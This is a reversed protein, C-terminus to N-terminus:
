NQRIIHRNHKISVDYSEMKLTAIPIWEALRELNSETWNEGNKEPETTTISANINNDVMM